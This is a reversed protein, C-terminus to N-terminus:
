GSQGVPCSMKMCVSPEPTYKSRVAVSTAKAGAVSKAFRYKSVRSDGLGPLLSPIPIGGDPVGVQNTGPGEGTLEGAGEIVKADPVGAVLGGNKTRSTNMGHLKRKVPAPVPPKVGSIAPSKRVNLIECDKPYVKAPLEPATTLKGGGVTRPRTWLGNTKGLSYYFFSAFM